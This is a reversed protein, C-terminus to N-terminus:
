MIPSLDAPLKQLCHSEELPARRVAVPRRIPVARGLTRSDQPLRFHAPAPM